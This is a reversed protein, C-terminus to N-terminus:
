SAPKAEVILGDLKELREIRAAYRDEEQVLLRRLDERHRPDFEERLRSVL